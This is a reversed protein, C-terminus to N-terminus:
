AADDKELQRLDTESINFEAFGCNLCVLVKPSLVIGPMELRKRGPVHINIDAVFQDQDDSRCLKCAM